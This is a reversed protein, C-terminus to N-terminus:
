MVGPWQGHTRSGSGSGSCRYLRFVGQSYMVDALRGPTEEKEREQSKAVESRHDQRLLNRHWRKENRIQKLEAPHWLVSELLLHQCCGM